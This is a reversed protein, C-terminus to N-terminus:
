YLNQQNCSEFRPDKSDSAVVRGDSGCGSGKMMERKERDGNIKETQNQRDINKQKTKRNQQAKATIKHRKKEKQTHISHCIM